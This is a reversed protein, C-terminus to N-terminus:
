SNWISGGKLIREFPFNTGTIMEFLKIYRFSLEEVLENPAKPLITDNYPDCNKTFWLRLFEKDISEPEENNAFRKQYTDLLWYRSSDPTHLEDILRINGEKDKGFEYKTDVLILNHKQAVLQGYSFLRLAKDAVYSWDEASMWNQEVIEAPSIPRDYDKEKTTPTLLPQDLIENKQLGDKLINGCYLREGKKYHTWLSTSTSGTIYGRVVVEIPFVDCKVVKSANPHVIELLHNQVIEKTKDFWWASILNLVSGKFPISTLIRDFASQRDTTVILLQEEDIQYIDRVKGVQRNSLPLNTENLTKDINERIIKRYSDSM